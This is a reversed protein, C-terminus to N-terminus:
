ELVSMSAVAKEYAEPDIQKASKMSFYIGDIEFYLFEQSGKEKIWNGTITQTLQVKRTTEIEHLPELERSSETILGRIFSLNVENEGAKVSHLYDDVGLGVTPIYVKSLGAKKAATLIENIQEDTYSLLEGQQEELNDKEGPDNDANVTQIPETVSPKGTPAPDSSSINSVQSCGVLLIEILVVSALLRRKNNM